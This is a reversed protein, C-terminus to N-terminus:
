ARDDLFLVWCGFLVVILSGNRLAGSSIYLFARVLVVVLLLLPPLEDSDDDRDDDDLVLEDMKILVVFSLEVSTIVFVSPLANWGYRLCGSGNM